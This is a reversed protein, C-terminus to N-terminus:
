AVEIEWKGTNTASRKLQMYKEVSINDSTSSLDDTGAESFELKSIRVNNGCKEQIFESPMALEEYSSKFNNYMAQFHAYTFWDGSLVAQIKQTYMDQYKKLGTSLITKRYLPNQTEMAAGRVETPKITTMGNGTPNWDVTVGLCRDYDYPIFFVKGSTPLFYMYYNNANNRICDPNGLLYNVAEYNTFYDMDVYKELKTTFDTATQSTKLADIFAILYKHHNYDPATRDDNTKLAYTFSQGVEEVGRSNYNTLDAPGGSNYTCKYLDGDMETPFNRKIFQKDITEYIMGVGLNEFNGNQKLSVSAMTIHPTLIGYARFMENAYIERMYTNDYNKNWKYYLKKMTAFSRDKRETKLNLNDWVTAIDSGWAGSKYEDGDFTENLSFRFHVFAYIEGDSSCFDRKSTNGRMRIGVEEYRYDTGNVTITLTCKRYTELKVPDNSRYAEDIKALEYPTIDIKVNIKTTYKWLTYYLNKEATSYKSYFTSNKATAEDSFDFETKLIPKDPNDPNDPNPKNDDDPNDPNPKNGDDPNPKNGDDPNNPNVPDDDGIDGNDGVDGSNNGNDPTNTPPDEFLFCATLASCIFICLIVLAIIKVKKM